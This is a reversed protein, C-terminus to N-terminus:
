TAFDELLIMRSVLYNVLLIRLRRALLRFPVSPLKRGEIIVAPTVFCCVTKFSVLESSLNRSICM